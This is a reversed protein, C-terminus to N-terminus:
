YKKEEVIKIIKILQKYFLDRNEDLKINDFIDTDQVEWFIESNYIEPKVMLIKKIIYKEKKVYENSHKDYDTVFPEGNDIDDLYVFDYNEKDYYPSPGDFLVKHEIYHLSSDYPKRAVFKEKKAVLIVNKGNHKVIYHVLENYFLYGFRKRM